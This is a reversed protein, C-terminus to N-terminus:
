QTACHKICFVHGIVGPTMLHVSQLKVFDCQVTLCPHFGNLFGAFPLDEPARPERTQENTVPLRATDSLSAGGPSSICPSGSRRDTSQPTPSPDWINRTVPFGTTYAVSTKCLCLGPLWQSFVLSLLTLCLQSPGRRHCRRYSLSPFIVLLM